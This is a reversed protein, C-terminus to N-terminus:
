EGGQAATCLELVLGQSGPIYDHRKGRADWTHTLRGLDDSEPGDATLVWEDTYDVRRKRRGEVLQVRAVVLVRRTGEPLVRAGPTPSLWANGTRATILPERTDPDLLQYSCYGKSHSVCRAPPATVSLIADGEPSPTPITM